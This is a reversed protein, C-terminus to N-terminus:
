VIRRQFWTAYLKYIQYTAIDLSGKCLEQWGPGKPGFQGSEQPNNAKLNIIPYAKFSKKELVMLGVAQM